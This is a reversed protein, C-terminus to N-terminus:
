KKRRTSPMKLLLRILIRRINAGEDFSQFNRRGSSAFDYFAPAMPPQTGGILESAHPDLLVYLSIVHITMRTTGRRTWFDYLVRGLGRIEGLLPLIASITISPVILKQMGMM